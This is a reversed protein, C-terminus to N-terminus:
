LGPLDLVFGSIVTECYNKVLFYSTKMFFSPLILFCMEHCVEGQRSPHGPRTILATGGIVVACDEVFCCDPYNEDEQLEILNVDCNKLVERITDYEVRAKAVNLEGKVQEPKVSKSAFSDPIRCIIAYNYHFPSAM